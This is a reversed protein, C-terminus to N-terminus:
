NQQAETWHWGEPMAIVRGRPAGHALSFKYDLDALPM